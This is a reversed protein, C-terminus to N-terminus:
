DNKSSLNFFFSFTMCWGLRLLFLKWKLYSVSTTLNLRPLATPFTLIYTAYTLSNGGQILLHTKEFNRKTELMNSFSRKLFYYITLFRAVSIVKNTFYCRKLALSPHYELLVLDQHLPLTRRMNQWQFAHFLKLPRICLYTHTLDM